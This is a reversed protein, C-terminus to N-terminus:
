RNRRHGKTRLGRSKKAASTLGRFARAKHKKSLIWSINKDAMIEPRSKDVLIAEFWCYIGDKALWYSNLLELNPFRRSARQEAIWRYNMMLNKRITMRKSRRGGKPRPRKHGGRRVRVRAIVFGAKAKYGLARARDLRTPKEVRAVADSQRWEVLRAKWLKSIGEGQKKWTEGIYDYGSKM